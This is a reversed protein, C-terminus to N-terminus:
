TPPEGDPRGKRDRLYEALVRAQNREEDHAAYLLSVPGQNVFAELRAVEGPNGELEARYRRAFEVYREPDYGFWQRLRRSPAIEKLRCTLEANEKRLGRPWLRDVLIRAGDSADPPEYVRKIRIRADRRKMQDSTM